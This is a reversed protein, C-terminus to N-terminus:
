LLFYIILPIKKEVQLLVALHGVSHYSTSRSVASSHLKRLMIDIVALHLVDIPTSSYELGRFMAPM